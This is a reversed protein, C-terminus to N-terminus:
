KKMEGKNFVVFISYTTVLMQATMAGGSCFCLIKWYQGRWLLYFFCRVKNASTQGMAQWNQISLFIGRKFTAHFLWSLYVSVMSYKRNHLIIWLSKCLLDLKSNHQVWHGIFNERREKKPEAIYGLQFTNKKLVAEFDYM